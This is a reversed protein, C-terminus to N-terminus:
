EIVVKIGNKKNDRLDAPVDILNKDEPAQYNVPVSVKFASEDIDSMVSLQRYNYKVGKDNVFEKVGSDKVIRANLLIKM